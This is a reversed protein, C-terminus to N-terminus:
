PTSGWIHQWLYYSFDKGSVNTSDWSDYRMSDGQVYYKLLTQGRPSNTFVLTDPKSREIDYWMYPSWIYGAKLTLKDEMAITITQTYSYATDNHGKEKRIVNIRWLHTGVMKPTYIPDPIVNITCYYYAPTDSGNSLKLSVTYNGIAAYTHKPAAASSTDGDGFDWHYFVTGAVYRDLKYNITDGPVHNGIYAISTNYIDYPVPKSPKQRKEACGMLGFMAACVILSPFTFRM